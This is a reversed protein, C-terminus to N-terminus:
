EHKLGKKGIDTRYFQFGEICPQGHALSGPDVFMLKGADNYANAIASSLDSGIGVVNLVRGGNVYYNDKDRKTGAHFVLGKCDDLGTILKGKVKSYDGPYGMSAVVVCCTAKDEFELEIEDLREDICAQMVDYLNNKLLPLVVQTEPDGFRCNYELVKPGESTLMLGAYLVGKYVRNENLEGMATITPFLIKSYIEAVDRPKVFQVPAYAGMGGTNPGKDEDFVRKHDQSYILPRVTKGDSFALVSVEQGDLREELVFREGAGGFNQTVIEIAKSVEEASDCVIVGKGAALGDAKVVRAWDNKAVFYRATDPDSFEEFRATPISYRQMLRKAYIKSGELEAADRSPGFIKLGRNNFKDVLGNVLPLEPGVITLDVKNKNAFIVLGELDDPKIDVNKGIESTGGNGPAFWLNVDSRLDKKIKWGICHERGGSGIILVNKM